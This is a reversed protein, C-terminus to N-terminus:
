VIGLLMSCLGVLGKDLLGVLAGAHKVIVYALGFSILTIQWDPLDILKYEHPELAAPYKGVNKTNWDTWKANLIWTTQEEGKPPLTDPVTIYKSYPNETQYKGANEPADNWAIWDPNPITKTGQTGTPIEQAIFKPFPNDAETMKVTSKKYGFLSAIDEAFPIWGWWERPLILTTGPAPFTFNFISETNIIVGKIIYTFAFVAAVDMVQDIGTRDILKGLHEKASEEIPKRKHGELLAQQRGLEQMKGIWYAEKKKSSLLRGRPM